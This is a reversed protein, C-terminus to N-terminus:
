SVFPVALLGWMWVKVGKIEDIWEACLVGLCYFFTLSCFDSTALFATGDLMALFMAGICCLVRVWQPLRFFLPSILYFGFLIYIYWLFSAESWRPYLLLNRLSHLLYDTTFPADKVLCALLAVGMGIVLFWLFFKKFKRWIYLGYEKLSNTGKYTYRILFASLFLFMQMHFSYIWNHLGHYWQPEFGVSFHGMVVMLMAMGVMMDIRVLRNKSSKNTM